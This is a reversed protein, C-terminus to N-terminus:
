SRNESIRNQEEGTVATKAMSRETESDGPGGSKVAGRFAKLTKLPQLLIREGVRTFEVRDNPKIGLADRLPKPITVRGKSTVTSFM